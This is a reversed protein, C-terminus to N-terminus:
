GDERHAGRPEVVPVLVREAFNQTMEQERLDVTPASPRVATVQSELLRVARRKEAIAAPRHLRRGARDRLFLSGVALFLWVDSM